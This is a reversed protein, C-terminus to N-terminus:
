NYPEIILSSLDSWKTDIRLCDFELKDKLVTSFVIYNKIMNIIIMRHVSNHEKLYIMMKFNKDNCNLYIM